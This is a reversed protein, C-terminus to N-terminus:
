AGPSGFVSRPDDWGFAFRSHAKCKVNGTEFDDDVGFTDAKREFYKLGGKKTTRLFWADADTFYNNAHIGGPFYNGMNLANIDNDGTGVRYESKLIRDAEFQLDVPIHLSSQRINVKRGSDDEWNSIDIVAQELAAESLDAATTLENAFTGGRINLHATSCMELGDGGTYSNNFARNFVNAGVVDKIERMSTALDEGKIKSLVGYKEDEMANETIIFGLAYDVMAYRTLFGQEATDYRVGAGEPKVKPLGLGSYSLVEEYAQNSSMKEFLATWQPTYRDYTQGYIEKLGPWLLKSFSGSNIPM